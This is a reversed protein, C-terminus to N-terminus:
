DICIHNTVGLKKAFSSITQKMWQSEVDTLEEGHNLDSWYEWKTFLTDILEWKLEQRRQIHM